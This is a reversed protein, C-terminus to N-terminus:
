TMSVAEVTIVLLVFCRALIAKQRRHVNDYRVWVQGPLLATTHLKNFKVLLPVPVNHRLAIGSLTEDASVVHESSNAPQQKTTKHKLEPTVPKEKKQLWRYIHHTCVHRARSHAHLM